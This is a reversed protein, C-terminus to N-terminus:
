AGQSEGTDKFSVDTFEVVFGRNAFLCLYMYDNDVAVFDFDTFTKESGAVKCIVTQGVRNIELAFKDGVAIASPATGANKISGGSERSFITAKDKLIGAAVYNSAINTASTNIYIDDRLMMGFGSQSNANECATVTATATATFNKSVDIRMFAAAFGDSAGAFKGEAAANGVTFKGNELKITYNAIKSAGGIDGMATKYWGDGLANETNAEPDFSTYDPRTYEKNIADTYDVAKTPAVADTKVSERLPCDTGLLAQAFQYSVMKAGYENIHTDDRGAPTENPKTGEYTTHAHFYKAEDNNEAYVAKTLSTLDIVTVGVAAGLDKIAKAYDGGKGSSDSSTTDHIKAGTYNGNADYRVIPTCLIATASKEAAVKIYKEYLVYAFSDGNATTAQTYTGNPDTYREAEDSKEDNHGFGIILYDGSAISNKLKTYNEETLFSKSSRGSLALNEVNGDAVNIYKSIQTGYGYRPLYYNDDFSCVTSDGVIYIKGTFAQSTDGEGGNKGDDDDSCASLGLLFAAAAVLALKFLKRKLITEEM